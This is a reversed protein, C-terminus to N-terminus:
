VTFFFSTGEDPASEAWIRGNHRHIIRQVTALGVGTGAFESEDHLRQFTGFLRDASEMRFGAGNDRVFFVTEGENETIGFEIRPNERKSTFKFANDLLNWLAIELLKADGFTRCGPPIRVEAARMERDQKLEECIHQVIASVDVEAKSLPLQTVKALDLMSNILHNMREGAAAIRSSYHACSEYEGAALSRGLEEAFGIIGRVPAKLDHSVAYSFSELERNVLSLERVMSELRMTKQHLEVFVRVKSKVVVPNLPKFLYDVAGSEFGEFTFKEERHTATVFIIPIGKTRELNRLLRAVEFGNMGPMQVDLIILAPRTGLTAELAAEGSAARIFELGPDELIAELSLLNAPNDDVILIESKVQNQSPSNL